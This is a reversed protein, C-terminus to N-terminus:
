IPIGSATAESGKDDIIKAYQNSIWGTIGNPLGPQVPQYEIEYWGTKEDKAIYPYKEGPKVEAIEEGASGPETRMRLFGTPTKLIEVFLKPGLSPPAANEKPQEKAKALKVFVNLRLGQITKLTMIRDSFGNAKVTIQHTAPSISLTKYPSFGRPTGDISIQASDPTSIVTLGSTNKSDKDFSVVDGSSEGETTGFERRVVTQIGSILTLKTEFPLLGPGPILKLSIEGAKYNGKYPTSGVLSGNIYVSASPETAIFIAGPKPQFAGILFLAALSLILFSVTLIGAIKLWKM